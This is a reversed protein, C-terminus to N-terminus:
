EDEGENVGYEIDLKNMYRAYIWILVVYVILSGQAAMYFSLPWGFFNIKALPIAFYGMVFTVVFWIILLITTLVLNRRWYERHKESLQM